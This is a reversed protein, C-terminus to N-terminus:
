WGLIFWDTATGLVWHVVVITWISGTRLGVWGFVLGGPIAAFTEAGPRGFHAITSLATQLVNAGSTGLRDKLGFLLVGRFLVEWSAYYLFQFLAYPIFDEPARTLGADLPYVGRMSASGAAIRGGVVALPVGVALWRAIPRVRGTGLGLDGWRKGTLRRCAVAPLIGLLLAAALFHLRVPLAGNATPTWGRGVSLTGIVDARAGYYFLFLALVSTLIVGETRGPVPVGLHRFSLSGNAKM